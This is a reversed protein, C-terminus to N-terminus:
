SNEPGLPGLKIIMARDAIGGVDVIKGVRKEDFPTRGEILMTFFPVRLSFIQICWRYFFTRKGNKHTVQIKFHVFVM